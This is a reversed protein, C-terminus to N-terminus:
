VLGRWGDSVLKLGMLTLLVLILRRVTDAQLRRVIRQGTWSGAFAVAVLAGLIPAVGRQLLGGALYVPVRTADVVLAIAASTGLYAETPLRWALLCASRVAGGTGILGAIFGSVIGGGVLTTRTSPLQFRALPLVSLTVFLLLFAGFVVRVLDSSLLTTVHAGVFSCAVGTIGFAAWIDWRVRRGFFYLRSANGFLHFCAVFVIATKIDMFLAAVPTMITAAGFGAMTGIVEAGFASLLFLLLRLGDLEGPGM